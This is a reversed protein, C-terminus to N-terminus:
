SSLKYCDKPDNKNSTEAISGTDSLCELGVPMLAPVHFVIGEGLEKAYLKGDSTDIYTVKFTGNNIFWSKTTDKHFMVPTRGGKGEFVLIKSTYWETEIWTVDYGYSTKNINNNSM